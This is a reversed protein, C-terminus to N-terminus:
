LRQQFGLGTPSILNSGQTVCQQVSDPSCWRCLSPIHVYYACASSAPVSPPYSSPSSTKLEHTHLLSNGLTQFIDVQGVTAWLGPPHDASMLMGPHNLFTHYPSADRSLKEEKRRIMMAKDTGWQNLPFIRHWVPTSRTLAVSGSSTLNMPSM